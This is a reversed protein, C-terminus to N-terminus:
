GEEGDTTRSSATSAGTEDDLARAVVGRYGRSTRLLEEHTGYAAVREGSLFAVRDAHHLLLPSGTTVVTTRGRRYEALREAIMAETHADVASTPEVMILVEPERALARALVVRQRQGGSLGRGKEDLRGQWGGDMALFVDDAAAAYLAAEAQELTLEGHPDIAEQLTGAFVQSASDSVLIKKRVAAIPVDALDVSGLSVGWKEGALAREREALKALEAQQRAVVRKARRGSLGDPVELSVPDHDAPLYRGLRDALAASDDPVGSVIMTLQGPEATFGSREDHLVGQEPLRLPQEPVDWPPQGSLVAIAKRASVISRVWRQALEFFTQIPWVMFLAYGFFSILEGVTLRGAVVERAGLWTLVVLFLGSFLVSASEVVAQWVGAAAGAQRTRQSQGAYNRAFTHEGGIGRLIRLGAVIDTAMGTLDATRTREVEERRQLPPLLPLALVVILPAAVLVMIGLPVSTSLVLGAILLYSALAGFARAFVETLAGFEDADGAAVSLVEGTPTRQPLVHGLQVSKRNVMMMPGYMGILWTRVVITHNLVGATVGIVVFGFLILALEGVRGLDRATIGEDVIRGILYPGIAGPVWELVATVASVLIVPWQQGLLWSLFRAPSRTDPDAFVGRRPARTRM